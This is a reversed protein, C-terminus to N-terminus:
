SLEDLLRDITEDIHNANRHAVEYLKKLLAADPTDVSNSFQLLMNDVYGGQVDLISFRYKVIGMNAAREIIIQNSTMSLSYQMPRSTSNWNIEGSETKEILRGILQRNKNHM